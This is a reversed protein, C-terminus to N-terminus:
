ASCVQWRNRSLSLDDRVVQLDHQIEDVTGAAKDYEKNAGSREQNAM